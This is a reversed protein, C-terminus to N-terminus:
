KSEKVLFSLFIQYICCLVLISVAGWQAKVADSAVGMLWPFLAGGSVGMIMLGSIENSKEPLRKLAFSFIISFINACAFGALAIMVYLVYQNSAFVLGIFAALTAIASIIYFRKASFVSLIISGLFAGTTKFVFYLSIAYGASELSMATREQMIKPATINLGVDIGVVTLIGLFFLLIDRNGLISLCELFTSTKGTVPTETIPTAMLWLSSLATFGAYVLFMLQWNGFYRVCFAAILPGLFSSIAKIFQGLTLSSTLKDPSVVNSLLPNLSVQIITNGIGLLGFAILMVNYNYALVPILLAVIQIALSLLVTKKRGIRNMLLGTPVSFIFFWLFVMMPLLNAISDSLDFDKKIYNTAIGVVDVFGMIFFGFFVPLSKFVTNNKM